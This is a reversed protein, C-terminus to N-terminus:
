KQSKKTLAALAAFPSMDSEQKVGAQKLVADADKSRPWPDVALALTQAIAEGLDFQDGSYTVTDCDLADIEIEDAADVAESGEAVLRLAFDSEVHEPVPEGTAICPQALDATLTGRVFAGGDEGHELAYHAELRDLASWGFRTALATREAADASLQVPAGARTAVGVKVLRSFEPAAESM